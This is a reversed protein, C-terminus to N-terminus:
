TLMREVTATLRPLDNQITEWLVKPEVSFYAHVVVNRMDAIARWPVEPHAATVDPPIHRAAEGIIAFDAVVAKVTKADVSFTRLDM